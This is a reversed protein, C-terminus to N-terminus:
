RGNKLIENAKKVIKNELLLKENEKVLDDYKYSFKDM